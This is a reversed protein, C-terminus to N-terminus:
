TAFAKCACYLFSQFEVILVCSFDGGSAEEPISYPCLYTCSVRGVVNAKLFIFASLIIPCMAHKSSFSDLFLPGSNQTHTHQPTPIGTYYTNTLLYLFECGSDTFSYCVACDSVTLFFFVWWTMEPLFLGARHGTIGLLAHTWMPVQIAKKHYEFVPCLRTVM